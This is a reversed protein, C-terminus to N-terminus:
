GASTGRPPFDFRTEFLSVLMRCVETEGEGTVRISVHESRELGMSMLGMVSRLDTESGAHQVCLSGEYDKVSEVITTAPRCHIGAANRVTASQEIV